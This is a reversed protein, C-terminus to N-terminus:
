CGLLAMGLAQQNGGTSAVLARRAAGAQLAAVAVVTQLAASAGLPEGLVRRPSLRRGSWDGWVDAEGADAWRVGTCSDVLMDAAPDAALAARVAAAAAMRGNAFGSPATIREILPGSGGRELLVAAAGESAALGRGYLGLGEAVLWDLEECGVVLCADVRGDLLWEAAMEVGTLFNASDGLLSHSVARSGFYASIHSAPANFVTEPFILPSALSPDALVEAYFRNSYNVCGNMMTAVVGLTREGAQVAATLAPGVAQVAAAMAFRTIPSARRLRPFKPVDEPGAAPVRRVESTITAGNVVRELLETPLAAGAACADALAAASWGAASVAGVGNIRIESSM